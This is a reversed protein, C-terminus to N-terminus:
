YLPKYLVLESREYHGIKIINNQDKMIQEFFHSAPLDAERGRKGSHLDSKPWVLWTKLETLSVGKM